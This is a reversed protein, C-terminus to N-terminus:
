CLAQWVITLILTITGLGWMFFGAMTDHIYLGLQPPSVSLYTGAAWQGAMRPSSWSVSLDTVGLATRQVGHTHSCLYM